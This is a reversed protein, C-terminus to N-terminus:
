ELWATNNRLFNAGFRARIEGHLPKNSASVADTPFIEWFKKQLTEDNSEPIWDGELREVMEVVIDRIEEPTNAQLEIDNDDYCSTQM